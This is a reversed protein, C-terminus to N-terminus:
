NVTTKKNKEDITIKVNQGRRVQVVEDALHSWSPYTRFVNIKYDGTNLVVSKSYNEKKTLDIQYLVEAGNYCPLVTMYLYSEDKLNEVNTVIVTVTGEDAPCEDDCSTTVALMVVGVMMLLGKFFAKKM